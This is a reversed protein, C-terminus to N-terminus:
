GFGIQDAQDRLKPAFALIAAEVLVNDQAGDSLNARIERGPGNTQVLFPSPQEGQVRFALHDLAPFEALPRDVSDIQWEPLQHLGRNQGLRRADDQGVAVRAARHDRRQCVQFIGTIGIPGQKKHIHMQNVVVNEAVPVVQGHPGTM